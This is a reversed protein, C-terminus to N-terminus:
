GYIDTLTTSPFDSGAADTYTVDGITDTPTALSAWAGEDYSFNQTESGTTSTYTVDDFTNNTTFSNDLRCLHVEAHTENKFMVYVHTGTQDPIASYAALTDSASDSISMSTQQVGATSFKNVMVDGSAYGVCYVYTGDSFANLTYGTFSFSTLNYTTHTFSTNVINLDIGDFSSDFVFYGINTSDVKFGLANRNSSYPGNGWRKSGSLAGASTLKVISAKDENVTTSTTGIASIGNGGDEVLVFRFRSFDNGVSKQWAISFTSQDFKLIITNSSSSYAVVVDGDSHILIGCPTTYSTSIEKDWQFTGSSNYKIILPGNPGESLIYINDSSDITMDYVTFNDTADSYNREWNKTGDVVDLKVLTIEGSTATGAIIIDDNSDSVMVNPDFSSAAWTLNWGSPDVPTGGSQTVITM